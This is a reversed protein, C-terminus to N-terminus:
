TEPSKFSTRKTGKILWTIKMHKSGGEERQSSIEWNIPFRLILTTNKKDHSVSQKEMDILIHSVGTFHM